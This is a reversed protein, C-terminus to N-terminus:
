LAPPIHCFNQSSWETTNGANQISEILSKLKYRITNVAIEFDHIDLKSRYYNWIKVAKYTFENSSASFYTPTNIYTSNYRTSRIHPKNFNFLEFLSYPQRFKLIKLLELFCHYTYLNHVTLIGDKLFLPKTHEKEYFTCDLVQKERPRCRACTNYKKVLESKGFLMRVCSKQAIFLPELKNIKNGGWVSLCYSM